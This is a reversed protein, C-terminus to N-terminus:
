QLRTQQASFEFFLQDGVGWTLQQAGRHLWHLVQHMENPTLLSFAVAEVESNIFFVLQYREEKFSIDLRTMLFAPEGAHSVEEDRQVKHPQAKEHEFQAMAAQHQVPVKGVVDSTKKMLEPSSELVKLVLKRTLWFDMRQQGNTLNGILRIRDELADFHFSLSAMNIM